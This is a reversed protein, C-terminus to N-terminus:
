GHSVSRNIGMPTGYWQDNGSLAESYADRSAVETELCDWLVEDTIKRHGSAAAKRAAKLVVNKIHGGSLEVQALQEWRIDKALPCKEPFMRKWIAIREQATPMPFELKLSLRRDFAPDLAGLRNTTFIVIGKYHELAMLLSNIQAAMIMGVRKRDTIMSDCEDFLLVTKDDAEEFAKNIGREFGGPEPTELEATSVLKLQYGFKDAIAQAMLTKGTGPEGYFLLSIATGKEFVDEFGWTKFIKDHHDVQSIADLIEQKKSEALIVSDFDVTGKIKLSKKYSLPTDQYNSQLTLAFHRLPTNIGQPAGHAFTGQKSTAWTITGTETNTVVGITGLYIGNDFWPFSPGNSWTSGADNKFTGGEITYGFMHPSCVVVDNLDLDSFLTENADNRREAKTMPPKESPNPLESLPPSLPISASSTTQALADIGNIVFVKNASPAQSDWTRSMVANSEQIRHSITQLVDRSLLRREPGLWEYSAIAERQQRLRQELPVENLDRRKGM